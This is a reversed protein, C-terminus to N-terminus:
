GFRPVWVGAAVLPGFALVDPFATWWVGWGVHVRAGTTRKAIVAAAAAWLGHAVIEMVVECSRPDAGGGRAQGHRIRDGCPATGPLRSLDDPAREASDRGVRPSGAHRM